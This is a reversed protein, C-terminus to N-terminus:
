SSAREGWEAFGVMGCWLSGYDSGIFRRVKRVVPADAAAAVAILRVASACVCPNATPGSGMLYGDLTHFTSSSRKLLVHDAVRREHAYPGASHPRFPGRPVADASVHHEAVNRVVDSARPVFRGSLTVGIRV